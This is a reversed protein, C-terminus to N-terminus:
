GNITRFSWVILAVEILSGGPYVCVEVWMGFRRIVIESAAVTDPTEHVLLALLFSLWSRSLVVEYLVILKWGFEVLDAFARADTVKM